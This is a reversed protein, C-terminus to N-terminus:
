IFDHYIQDLSDLIKASKISQYLERVKEVYYNRDFTMHIEVKGHQKKMRPYLRMLERVIMQPTDNMSIFLRITNM